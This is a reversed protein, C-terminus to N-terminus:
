LLNTLKDTFKKLNLTSLHISLYMYIHVHIYRLIFPVLHDYSIGKKHGHVTTVGNEHSPIWLLGLMKNKQANEPLFVRNFDVRVDDRIDKEPFAMYLPCNLVNAGSHFQWIGCYQQLERTRMLEKIFIQKIGERTQNKKGMKNVKSYLCYYSAINNCKKHIHTAGRMLYNHSLYNDMNLVSDVTVRCRMELDNDPIGYALRSISSLYCNGNMEIEIVDHQLFEEPLDKPIHKRARHDIQDSYRYRDSMYKNPLPPIDPLKRLILDKLEPFTKCEMIEEYFMNFNFSDRKNLPTVGGIMTEAYNGEIPSLSLSAKVTNSKGQMPTSTEIVDANRAIQEYDELDVMEGERDCIVANKSRTRSSVPTQEPKEALFKQLTKLPINDEMDSCDELDDFFNNEDHMELFSTYSEEIEEVRVNKYPSSVESLVKKQSKSSKKKEHLTGKKGYKPAFHYKNSQYHQTSSEWLINEFELELEKKKEKSLKTLAAWGYDLVLHSNKCEGPENLFCAECFCSSERVEIFGVQGTNRVSHFSQTGDVTNAKVMAGDRNIVSVEFYHRQLHFCMGKEVKSQKLYLDCYAVLERADGFEQRGSRVIADIHQALRGICGDAEAKGHKSCFYNRQYLIETEQSIHYFVNCSKYQQACNDSWVILRKILVGKGRLHALAREVFAKVAIYDHNRDDSVIMIEDRELHDCGEEPCPYYTVIPHLTSQNRSWFAGQIEDQRHHTYNQAFDMVMLVDGDQLQKKCEDFQMAQWRFHFQHKSMGSLQHIFLALLQARTGRYRVKDTVRYKGKKSKNGDNALEDGASDPEDSNKNPVTRCVWQSWNVERSWDLNPNEQIIKEQLTVPGCKQCLRFICDRKYDTIVDSDTFELKRNTSRHAAHSDGEEKPCFTRILNETIRKKIGKVGNALLSDILLCINVCTDCQCDKFPIKRMTRFTKRICRYVSTPSLVKYGLDIQERRYEQYAMALPTRLYFYRSYKKFPLQLSIKSSTYFEIVRDKLEMPLARGHRKACSLLRYLQSYHMRLRRCAGRITYRQILKSKIEQVKDFKKQTKAKRLQLIFSNLMRQDQMAMHDGKESHCIDIIRCMSSSTSPSKLMKKIMRAVLVTKFTPSKPLKKSLEHARQRVSGKYKDPTLYLRLSKIIQCSSNPSQSQKRLKTKRLKRLEAKRARAKEM